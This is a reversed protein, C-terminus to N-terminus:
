IGPQSKCGPIVQRPAATTIGVPEDHQLMAHAAIRMAPPLANWRRLIVKLQRKFRERERFDRGFFTFEHLDPGPTYNCWVSEVQPGRRTANVFTFSHWDSLADAYHACPLHSVIVRCALSRVWYLFRDHDAVNWERAYKPAQHRRPHMLYPPDAYLVVRQADVAPSLLFAAAMDIGDGYAIRYGEPATQWAAVLERDLDWGFSGRRAPAKHRMIRGSGVFPEIYWDHPPIVNIISRLATEGGKGGFYSPFGPLPFRAAGTMGSLM